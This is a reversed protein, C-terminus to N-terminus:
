AFDKAVFFGNLCSLVMFSNEGLETGDAPVMPRTSLDM